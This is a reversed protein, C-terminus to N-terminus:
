TAGPENEEGEHNCWARLTLLVLHDVPVASAEEDVPAASIRRDIQLGNESAAAVVTAVRESLADTPTAAADNGLAALRTMTTRVTRLWDRRAIRDESSAEGALDLEMLVVNLDYDNRFAAVASAVFEELPEVRGDSRYTRYSDVLSRATVGLNLSAPRLAACYHLLLLPFLALRPPLM